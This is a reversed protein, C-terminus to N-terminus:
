GERRPGVETPVPPRRLCTLLPPKLPNEIEKGVEDLWENEFRVSSMDTRWNGPSEGEPEWTEPTPASPHGTVRGPPFTVPPFGDDTDLTKIAVYFENGVKIAFHGQKKGDDTTRFNTDNFFHVLTGPLGFVLLSFVKNDFDPDSGLFQYWPRRKIWIEKLEEIQNAAVFRIRPQDPVNGLLENLGLFFGALRGVSRLSSVVSEIKKLEKFLSEFSAFPSHEPVWIVVVSDHTLGFSPESFLVVITPILLPLVMVPVPGVEFPPITVNGLSLNVLASLCRVEGVPEMATDLRLERIIPPLELSVTPAGLGNQAIFDKGETLQTGGPTSVIWKLELRVKIEPPAVTGFLQGLIGSPNTPSGGGSGPLPPPFQQGDKVNNPATAIDDGAVFDTALTGESPISLLDTNQFVVDKGAWALNLFGNALQSVDILPSAPILSARVTQGPAIHTSSELVVRLTSKVAELIASAHTASLDPALVGSM